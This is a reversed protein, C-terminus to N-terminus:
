SSLTTRRTVFANRKNLKNFLDLLSPQVQGFRPLGTLLNAFYGTFEVELSIFFHRILTGDLKMELAVLHM